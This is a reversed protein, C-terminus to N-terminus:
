SKNKQKRLNKRFNEIMYEKVEPFFGGWPYGYNCEKCYDVLQEGETLGIKTYPSIDVSGCKPCVKIYKEKRM